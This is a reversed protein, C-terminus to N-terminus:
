SFLNSFFFRGFSKFVENLQEQRGGVAGAPQAHPAPPAPLAPLAPFFRHLRHDPAPNALAELDAAVPDLRVAM